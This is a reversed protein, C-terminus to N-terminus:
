GAAATIVEDGPRLRDDVLEPSTLASLAILNASSGSNVLLAFRRGLYDAFVKESQDAFRGTTLWFDLASDVLSQIDAADFVRGACPVPTQGPTFAREPFAARHYQRVLELIEARLHEASMEM